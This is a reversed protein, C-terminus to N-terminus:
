IVSIFIYIIDQYIYKELVLTLLYINNIILVVKRFLNFTLNDFFAYLINPDGLDSAEHEHGFESISQKHYWDAM